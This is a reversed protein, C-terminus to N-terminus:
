PRRRRPEVPTEGSQDAAPDRTQLEITEIRTVHVGATRLERVIENLAQKSNVATLEVHATHIYGDDTREEYDVRYSDM